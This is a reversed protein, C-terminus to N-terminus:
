QAAAIEYDMLSRLPAPKLAGLRWVMAFDVTITGHTAANWLRDVADSLAPYANQFAAVTDADGNTVASEM